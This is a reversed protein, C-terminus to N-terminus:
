QLYTLVSRIYAHIYLDFGHIVVIVLYFTMIMDSTVRLNNDCSPSFYDFNSVPPVRGSTSM